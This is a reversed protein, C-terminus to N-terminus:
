LPQGHSLRDAADEDDVVLVQHQALEHLAEVGGGAREVVREADGEGADGRGPFRELHDLAVAVQLGDQDVVREIRQRAVVAGRAAAV